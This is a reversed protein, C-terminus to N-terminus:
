DLKSILIDRSGGGGARGKKYIGGGMNMGVQDLVDLRDNIRAWLNMPTPGARFRFEAVRHVIFLHNGEGYPLGIGPKGPFWLVDGRGGLVTQNEPELYAMKEKPIDDPTLVCADGMWGTHWLKGSLPLVELTRAVTKPADETLLEAIFDEKDIRISIHTTM